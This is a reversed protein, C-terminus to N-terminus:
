RGCAGGAGLALVFALAPAGFQLMQLLAFYQFYHSLFNSETANKYGLFAFLAILFAGLSWMFPVVGMWDTRTCDNNAARSQLSRVVPPVVTLLLHVMGIWAVQNTVLVFPFLPTVGCFPDPGKGWVAIFLAMGAGLTAVFPLVIFAMRAAFWAKRHQQKWTDSPFNLLNLSSSNSVDTNSGSSNLASTATGAEKAEVSGQKSDDVNIYDFEAPKSESMTAVKAKISSTGTYV